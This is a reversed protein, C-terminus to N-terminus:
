SLWRKKWCITVLGGVDKDDEGIDEKDDEDSQDDDGVLSRSELDELEVALLALADSADNLDPSDNATKKAVNFQRLISKAM